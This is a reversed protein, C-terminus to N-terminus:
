PKADPTDRPVGSHKLGVTADRRVKSDRVGAGIDIRARPAGGEDPFAITAMREEKWGATALQNLRVNSAGVGDCSCAHGAM